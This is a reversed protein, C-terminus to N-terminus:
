QAAPVFYFPVSLVRGPICMRGATSQVLERWYPWVHYGVNSKAFEKLVAEELEIQSFYEADFTARIEVASSDGQNAEGEDDSINEQKDAVLRVGVSYRFTYLCIQSPSSDTGEDSQGVASTIAQVGSFSQPTLSLDGLQEPRLQDSLKVESSRLRVDDITLNNHAEKILENM